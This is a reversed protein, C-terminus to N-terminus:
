ESTVYSSDDLTYHGGASSVDVDKSCEVTIVEDLM